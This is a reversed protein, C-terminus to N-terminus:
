VNSLLLACLVLGSELYFGLIFASFDSVTPHLGARPPDVIAVVNKFHQVPTTLNESSCSKNLQSESETIGDASSVSLSKGNLCELGTRWQSEAATDMSDINEIPTTDPDICKNIGNASGIGSEKDTETANVISDTKEASSTNDQNDLLGDVKPPSALYEKLVSGM